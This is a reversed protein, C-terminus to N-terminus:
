KCFPLLKNKECEQFQKHSYSSSCGIVHIDFAQWPMETWPYASVLYPLEVKMKVSNHGYKITMNAHGSLLESVRQSLKM